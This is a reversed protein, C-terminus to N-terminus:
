YFDDTKKMNTKKLQGGLIRVEVILILIQPGAMLRSSLIQIPLPSRDM